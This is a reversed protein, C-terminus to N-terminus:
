RFCQYEMVLVVPVGKGDILAPEFRIARAANVSSEVFSGSGRFPFVFGITGDGKFEVAIKVTSSEMGMTPCLTRPRNLLKFKREYNIPGQLKASATLKNLIEIALKDKGTKIYSAGLYVMSPHDAQRKTVLEEFITIAQTFEGSRYLGLAKDREAQAFVIVSSSTFALLLFLIKM